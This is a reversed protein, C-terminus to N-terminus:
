STYDKLTGLLKYFVAFEGLMKMETADFRSANLWAFFMLGGLQAMTWAADVLKEKSSRQKRRVM